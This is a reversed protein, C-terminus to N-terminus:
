VRKIFAADLPASTDPAASHQVKAGYQIPDHKHPSFQAKSATVHGYKVLLNRIYGKMTLRCTCKAYDWALNIGAYETGKWDETITYHKQLVSRLHKAHHEGVYKIGFGM